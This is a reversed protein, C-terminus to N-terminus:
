GEQHNGPIQRSLEQLEADVELLARLIPEVYPGAMTRVHMPAGEWSIRAVVVAAETAERRTAAPRMVRM